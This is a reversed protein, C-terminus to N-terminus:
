DPWKYPGIYKVQYCDGINVASERPNQDRSGPIRSAM